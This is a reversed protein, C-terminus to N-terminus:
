DLDIDFYQLLESETSYNYVQRLELLKMTLVNMLKQFLYYEEQDIKLRIGNHLYKDRINYYNILIKSVREKLDGEFIKPIFNSKMTSLGKGRGKKRALFVSELVSIVKVIREHFDDTVSIDGIKNITNKIIFGIETNDNIKLFNTVIALGNKSMKSLKADGITVPYGSGHEARQMSVTWKNFDNEEYKCLYSSMFGTTISVYELIPLEANKDMSEEILFMRLTNVILKSEIKALQEARDQVGKFDVKLVIKDKIYDMMKYFEEDKLAAEIREKQIYKKDACFISARGVSFNREIGLFNIVYYYSYTNLDKKLENKLCEIPSVSFEKEIYYDCVWDFVIEEIFRLTAYNKFEDLSLLIDECVKSLKSYNEPNLGIKVKNISKFAFVINNSFDTSYEKINKVEGLKIPEGLGKFDVEKIEGSNPSEKKEEVYSALEVVKKDLDKIVDVM